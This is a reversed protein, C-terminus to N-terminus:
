LHVMGRRIAEGLAGTRDHVGLKLYINKVHAGTTDTTIGLAYAIEKNRM